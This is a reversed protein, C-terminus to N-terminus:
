NYDDAKLLTRMIIVEHYEQGQTTEEWRSALSAQTILLIHCFHHHTDELALDSFAVCSRGQGRVNSARPSALRWAVLGNLLKMSFGMLLPVLKGAMLSGQGLRWTVATRASM